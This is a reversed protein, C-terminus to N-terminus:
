EDFVESEKVGLADAIRKRWAPYFPKNGKIASYFDAPSINAKLALKNGSIRQQVMVTKLKEYM